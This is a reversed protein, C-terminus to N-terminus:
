EPAHTLGLEEEMMQYFAEIEGRQILDLADREIELRERANPANLVGTEVRENIRRDLEGEIVWPGSTLVYELFELRSMGAAEVVFFELARVELMGQEGIVRLMREETVAEDEMNVELVLLNIAAENINGWVKIPCMPDLTNDYIAMGHLFISGEGSKPFYRYSSKSAAHGALEHILVDRLDGVASVPTRTIQESSIELRTRLEDSVTIEAPQSAGLYFTTVGNATIQEPTPAFDGCENSGSLSDNFADRTQFSVIVDYNLDPIHGFTTKTLNTLPGGVYEQVLSETVPDNAHELEFRVLADFAMQREGTTAPAYARVREYAEMAAQREANAELLDPTIEELGAQRGAEFGEDYARETAQSVGQKILWYAAITGVSVVAISAVLRPVLRTKSM